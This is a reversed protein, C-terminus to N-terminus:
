YLIYFDFIDVISSKDYQVLVNDRSVYIYHFIEKGQSTDFLWAVSRDGTYRKEDENFGSPITNGPHSHVFSQLIDGNNKIDKAVTKMNISGENNDSFVVSYSDTSIMGMEVSTNDALFKFLDASAETTGEFYTKGSDNKFTGYEFSISQGTREWEGDSNKEVIYFSDQEKDETRSVFHGTGNIEWIDMGDPDVFDVPNGACYAYPSVSWYEEGLPDPSVWQGTRTSYLRAGYDLQPM